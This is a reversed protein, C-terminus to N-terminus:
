KGSKHPKKGFVEEFTHFRGEKIDKEALRIDNMLKKDSMIEITELWGEYDDVSMLVAEPEGRRSIIYRDFNVKVDKIVGALNERLKRTSINKVM